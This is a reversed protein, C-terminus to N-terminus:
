YLLYTQSLEKCTVQLTNGSQRVWPEARLKRRHATNMRLCEATNVNDGPTTKFLWHATLPERGLDGAAQEERGRTRQESAQIPLSDGKVAKQPLASWGGWLWMRSSGAWLVKTPSYLLRPCQSGPQVKRNWQKRAITYAGKLAPAKMWQKIKLTPFRM